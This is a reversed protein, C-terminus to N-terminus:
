EDATVSIQTLASNTLSDSGANQASIPSGFFAYVLASMTLIFSIVIVIWALRRQNEWAAKWRRALRAAEEIQRRDGIVDVGQMPASQMAGSQIASGGSANTQVGIPTSMVGAHAHNAHQAPEAHMALVEPLGQGPLPRSPGLGLHQRDREATFPAHCSPCAFADVKVEENCSHCVGLLNAVGPTDRALMWFQKTTPGRLITNAGLKGQQILRAVTDFTCGPRHPMREDRISWPGMQNQTAQKSLPDFRASCATCRGADPTIEGCFPCVLSRLQPTPRKGAVAMAQHMAIERPSSGQTAIGASHGNDTM